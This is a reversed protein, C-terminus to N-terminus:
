CSRIFRQGATFATVSTNPAEGPIIPSSMFAPAVLPSRLANHRPEQLSDVYTPPIFRPKGNVLEVEWDSRHVLRHHQGCLLTLNEIHTPGGGLWHRLHHADCVSAPRDCGPFTCGRDRLVLARRIHAPVVYAPVAVDLPKSPGGMVAPLAHCDCAIRRAERATLYSDPSLVMDDLANQLADLSITFAV